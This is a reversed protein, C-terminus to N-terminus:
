SARGIKRTKGRALDNCIDRIRLIERRMDLHRLRRIDSSDYSIGHGESTCGRDRELDCRGRARRPKKTDDTALSFILTLTTASATNPTKGVGNTRCYRQFLLKGSPFM